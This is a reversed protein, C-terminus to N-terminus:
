LFQGERDLERRAEEWEREVIRRKEESRPTISVDFRRPVAVFGPVFEDQVPMRGGERKGVNFAWFLRSVALLLSRDAVHMGPCIRRGAGFGFHDRQKADMKASAASSTDDGLYREPVFAAPDPYRRADRNLTWTNTMLTADKPIRHGLCYTDEDMAHPFAGLIASPHWRLTEKVCARVYPLNPMDDLTPMRADGIVKDLEAQGTEQVSPYLLLAALFGYLQTSTTDAGAEFLQAPMHCAYDDAFNEAAQLAIIDKMVCARSAKGSQEQRQISAKVDRYLQTYM